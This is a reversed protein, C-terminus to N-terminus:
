KGELENRIFKERDEILSRLEIIFKRYYKVGETPGHEEEFHAKYGGPNEQVLDWITRIDKGTAPGGLSSIEFSREDWKEEAVQRKRSIEAIQLERGRDEIARLWPFQGKLTLLSFPGVEYQSFIAEIDAESEARLVTSDIEDKSREVISAYASRLCNDHKQRIRFLALRPTDLEAGPTLPRVMADWYFANAATQLDKFAEINGRTRISTPTHSIRKWEHRVWDAYLHAIDGSLSANLSVNLQSFAKQSNELNRCSVHAGRQYSTSKKGGYYNCRYEWASIEGSFSRIYEYDSAGSALINQVKKSLADKTKM